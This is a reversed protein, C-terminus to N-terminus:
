KLTATTSIVLVSEIHNFDVAPRIIAEKFLQADTSTVREVRGIPLLRPLLGGLGSTVVIDDAVIEDSQLVNALKLSGDAQGSITGTARTGVLVVNISSGTDVILQVQATRENVQGVRGILGFSGGVVAMGERLGQARGANIVLYRAYPSVESAIVSACIGTPPATPDAASAQQCAKLGVGIVDAGAVDFAPNAVAFDLLARYQAATAKFERLQLNEIELERVRTELQQNRARLAQVDSTGQFFGALAVGASRLPQQIPALVVTLPNDPALNANGLGVIM